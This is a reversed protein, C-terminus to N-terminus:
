SIISLTLLFPASHSRKNIYYTYTKSKKKTTVKEVNLLNYENMNKPSKIM